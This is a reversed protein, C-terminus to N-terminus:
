PFKASAPDNTTSVRPDTEGSNSVPKENLGVVHPRVITIEASDFGELSQLKRSLKGEVEFDASHAPRSRNCLQAVQLRM